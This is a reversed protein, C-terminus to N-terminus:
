TKNQYVKTEHMSDTSHLVERYQYLLRFTEISKYKLVLLANGTVCIQGFECLITELLM